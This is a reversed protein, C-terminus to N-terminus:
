QRATLDPEATASPTKSAREAARMAGARTKYRGGKRWGTLFVHFTTPHAGDAPYERLTVDPFPHTDIHDSTM